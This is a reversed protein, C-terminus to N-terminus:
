QKQNEKGMRIAAQRVKEQEPNVYLAATTTSSHGLQTMVLHIDNEQEMLKTGYTHRLKHPSLSKNGFFAKTYKKVMRAVAENSLPTPVNNRKSVFLYENEDDSANYKEKRVEMYAALDEMVQPIVAVVDKKGGKRIVHIESYSFDIDKLRLNSLENVRIGSGLFLSCIAVDRLKDRKFYTLQKSKESLSHEYENKLYNIFKVDENNHFIKQSLRSARSSLTEKQKAVEIKLMVNRYFYPEGKREGDHIETQTTLYHFLSRLSSIKRSISVKERKKKVNTSVQIDERMLYKFFSKAQDLELNELTELPIDKIKDCKAINEAILWEFFMKYDHLYNMLTSSSRNDLKDDIYEVVYFPMITLMEDIKEKHRQHQRTSM